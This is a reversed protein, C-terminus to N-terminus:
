YEVSPLLQFTNDDSNKLERNRNPPKKKKLRGLLVFGFHMPDLKKQLKCFETRGVM